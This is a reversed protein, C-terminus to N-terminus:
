SPQGGRAARADRLGRSEALMERLEDLDVGGRALKEIAGKGIQQARRASIATGEPTTGAVLMGVEAYSHERGYHDLACSAAGPGPWHVITPPPKGEHRHGPRDGGDIRLLNERCMVWPCPRPGEKCEARGGPPLGPRPEWAVQGPALRLLAARRAGRRRNQARPLQELRQEPGGGLVVDPDHERAQSRPAQDGRPKRPGPTSM